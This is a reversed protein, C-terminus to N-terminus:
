AVAQQSHEASPVCGRESSVTNQAQCVVVNLMMGLALLMEKMMTKM